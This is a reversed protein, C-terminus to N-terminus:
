RTTAINLLKETREPAAQLCLSMSLVNGIHDIFHVSVIDRTPLNTRIPNGHYPENTIYMCDVGEKDHLLFTRCARVRSKVTNEAYVAVNEIFIM